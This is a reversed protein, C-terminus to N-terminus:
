HKIELYIDGCHSWAVISFVSLTYCVSSRYVTCVSNGLGEEILFRYSSCLAIEVHVVTKIIRFVTTVNDAKVHAPQCQRSGSFVQSSNYSFLM